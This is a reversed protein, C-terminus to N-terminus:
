VAERSMLLHNRAVENAVLRQSVMTDLLARRAEPSDLQAPDVANGFMRRVQEQQARYREQFERQTIESGGVSAVGDAGGRFRTYAEIGWTAFTLAILGLFIQIVKKYKEVFDFM